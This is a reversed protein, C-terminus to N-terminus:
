RIRRDNALHPRKGHQSNQSSPKDKNLLRVYTPATGTFADAHGSCTPEGITMANSTTMMGDNNTTMSKTYLRPM